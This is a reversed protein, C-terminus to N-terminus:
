GVPEAAKIARVFRGTALRLEHYAEQEALRASAAKARVQHFHRLAGAVNGAEIVLPDDPNGGPKWGLPKPKRNSEAARRKVQEAHRRCKRRLPGRGGIAEQDCNPENCDRSVALEHADIEVASM